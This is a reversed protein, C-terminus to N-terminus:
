GSFPQKKYQNNKIGDSMFINNVDLIKGENFATVAGSHKHIENITDEIQSNDM